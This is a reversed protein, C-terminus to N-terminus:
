GAPLASGDYSSKSLKKPNTETITFDGYSSSSIKAHSLEPFEIGIKSSHNSFM